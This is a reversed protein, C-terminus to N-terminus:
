NSRNEFLNVFTPDLTIEEFKLLRNCKTCIRLKVKGDSTVGKLDFCKPITLSKGEVKIKIMDRLPGEIECVSSHECEAARLSDFVLALDQMNIIKKESLMKFNAILYDVCRQRLVFTNIHKVINLLVVVNGENISVIKECETQLSDIGFRNSILIMEQYTNNDGPLPSKMRHYLHEIMMSFTQFNVDSIKVLSVENEPILKYLNKAYRSLVRKNCYLEHRDCKFILDSFSPKNFYDALTTNAEMIQKEALCKEEIAMLTMGERVNALVILSGAVFSLKLRAWDSVESLVIGGDLKFLERQALYYKYLTLTEDLLYLCADGGCLKTGPLFTMATVNAFEVRRVSKRGVDYRFLEKRKTLGHSRSEANPYLTDKFFFIEAGVTCTEGELKFANKKIDETESERTLYEDSTWEFTKLDLVSLFNVSLDAAFSATGGYVFLSNDCLFAGFRERRKPAVGSANVKTWLDKDMDYITLGYRFDTHSSDLGLSLFFILERGSWIGKVLREKQYKIAVLQNGEKLFFLNSSNDGQALLFIGNDTSIVEADSFGVCDLPRLLLLEDWVPIKHQNIM